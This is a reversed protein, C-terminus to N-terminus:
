AQPRNWMAEFMTKPAAGPSATGTPRLVQASPQGGGAAAPRANAKILDYAEKVIASWRAPPVGQLLTPLRPLLKAEIAAYDMDSAQLQQCLKDVDATGQQVAQAEAQQTQQQSRQTQQTAQQQATATRLRALEVAQAEAMQLNDVADRLDPHDALADVQQTARGTILQIQQLQSLLVKEAAAYDGRNIAGIVEVAQEFQPRQVGHQQFTERFYGVQEEHKATLQELQADREKVANALKQFRQAAQPSAGDPPTLDEATLAGPKQAAPQQAPPQAAAAPAAPSAAPAPAAGSAAKAADAALEAATKPAFRGLEDRPQSLGQTIAELMTKPGTGPDGSAPAPAASQSPSSETAPAPTGGADSPQAVTTDVGGGASSGTGDNEDLLRHRKLLRLIFM